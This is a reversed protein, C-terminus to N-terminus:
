KTGLKICENLFKQYETKKVSPLIIVAHNTYFKLYYLWMLHRKAEVIADIWYQFYLKEWLKKGNKMHQSTDHAALLFNFFKDLKELYIYDDASLNSRGKTTIRKRLVESLKSYCNDNAIWSRVDIFDSEKWYQHHMDTFTRIWTDDRQQRYVTYILFTSSASLFAIIISLFNILYIEQPM